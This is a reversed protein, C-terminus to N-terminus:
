LRHILLVTSYYIFINCMAHSLKIQGRTEVMRSMKVTQSPADGEQELEHRIITDLWKRWKRLRPGSNKQWV